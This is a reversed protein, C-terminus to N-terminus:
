EYMLYDFKEELNGNKKGELSIPMKWFLTDFYKDTASERVRNIPSFSAYFVWKRLVSIIDCEHLFYLIDIRRIKAEIFM